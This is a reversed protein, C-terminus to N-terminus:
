AEWLEAEQRRSAMGAEFVAQAVKLKEHEAGLERLVEPPADEAQPAARPSPSVDEEDAAGGGPATPELATTADAVGERAAAGEPPLEGQAEETATGEPEQQISPPTATRPPTLVIVVEPADTAGPEAVPSSVAQAAPAEVGAAEDAQRPTVLLTTMSSPPLAVESTTRGAHEETPLAVGPLSGDAAPMAAAVLASEGPNRLRQKKSKKSPRCPLVILGM